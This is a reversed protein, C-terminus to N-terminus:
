LVERKKQFYIISVYTVNLANIGYPIKYQEFVAAHKYIQIKFAKLVNSGNDFISFTYKAFLGIFVTKNMIFTYNDAISKHCGNGPVIKKIYYTRLKCVTIFMYCIM